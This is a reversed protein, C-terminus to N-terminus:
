KAGLINQIFELINKLYRLLIQYMGEVYIAIILAVGALPIFPDLKTNKHKKTYSFLLIIPILLSLAVGSGVGMKGLMNQIADLSQVGTKIGIAVGLIISLILDAVAALFLVLIIILSFRLSHANTKRHEKIFEPDEKRKKVRIEEVKLIIILAIFAGFLVVPKSPLLFFCFFPIGMSGTAVLFKITIAAVEYLIPIAILSRFIKIKKGKFYKKPNYNLFFMMLSCLFLDIFINFMYASSGLNFLVKGWALARQMFPTNPFLLDAFGFGFHIITLNGILFMLLAIGGYFILMNRFNERKQVLVAFNAILFLPLPLGAVIEAFVNIWNLSQIPNGHNFFVAIRLLVALQTIALCLWGIIRLYRYSLPGRYKIDNALTRDKLKIRPTKEVKSM